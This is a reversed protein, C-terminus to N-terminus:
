DSFQEPDELAELLYSIDDSPLVGRAQGAQSGSLGIRDGGGGGRQSVIEQQAAATTEVFAATAHAPLEEEAGAVASLCLTEGTHQATGSMHTGRWATLLTAIAGPSWGDGDGGPTSLDVSRLVGAAARLGEVLVPSVSPHATAAHQQTAGAGQQTASGAGTATGTATGTPAETSKSNDGVQLVNYSLDLALAPWGM